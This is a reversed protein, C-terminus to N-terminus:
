RRKLPNFMDGLDPMKFETYGDTSFLSDPLPGKEIKKVELRTTEAGKADHGVVRLPFFNGDRAIKEWEPSPAGRGGMPGQAQPFMFTGLGKALWLEYSEGKAGTYKYETALYGAIMETRGTAVPAAGAHEAAAQGAAAEMPQALPHRMFNKQGNHEMLMIMEKHSFDIIVAAAGGRHSSDQPMDYRMRGEKIAYDITMPEKKKSSSVEMHVRGEFVEAASLATFTLLSFATLLLGRCRPFASLNMPLYTSTPWVPRRACIELIGVPFRM